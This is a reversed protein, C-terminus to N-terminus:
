GLSLSEMGFLLQEEWGVLTKDSLSFVLSSSKDSVLDREAESIALPREPLTEHQLRLWRAYRHWPRVCPLLRPAVGKESSEGGLASARQFTSRLASTVSRSERLEQCTRGGSSRGLVEEIGSVQNTGVTDGSGSFM